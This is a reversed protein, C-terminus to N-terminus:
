QKSWDRGLERMQELEDRDFLHKNEDTVIPNGRATMAYFKFNRAEGILRM